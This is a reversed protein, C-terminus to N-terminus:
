RRARRRRDGEVELRVRRSESRVARNRDLTRELVSLQQANRLREQRVAGMLVSREDADWRVVPPPPRVTEGPWAAAEPLPRIAREEPALEEPPEGLLLWSRDPRRVLVGREALSTAALSVTPRRAGVLEGIVEHTLGLRIHVGDPTTAGWRDALAWFLAEVREEVRPLHAIALLVSLRQVQAAARELLALQVGPWMALPQQLREDLVAARVPTVAAVQPSGEADTLVLDGPGLIQLSRQGGLITERLVAGQLLLHGFPRTPGADEGGTLDWTGVEIRALPVVMQASAELRDDERLRSALDPEAVLLRIHSPATPKVASRDM